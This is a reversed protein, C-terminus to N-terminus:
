EHHFGEAPKLGILYGITTIYEVTRYGRASAKMAQLLSNFGELLGNSLRSSTWNMILKWHKRVTGAVSVMEDIGSQVAKTVWGKLFGRAQMANSQSFFDDFLLRMHYARATELNRAEMDAILSRDKDNLNDPRKLVAYQAGVLCPQDRRERRRVATVAEGILKIIHFRDLTIRAKPLHEAIGSLFAESMDCTVDTIALPDGGHVRLHRAFAAITQKGKGETIFIVKRTDLDMFITIYRHRSRRSTEDVGVRRVAELQQRELARQVYGDIIRWVKKDTLRVLEAVQAVPMGKAMQLVMAELLLTYGSGHRAWPVDLNQVHGQECRIRPVDAHLYTKHQWFDLHRWTHSRYDHIHVGPAQCEKCAPLSATRLYRLHLNVEAKERAFEIHTVEWDNGLGLAAKFLDLNDM